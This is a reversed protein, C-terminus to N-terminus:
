RLLDRALGDAGSGVHIGCPDDQKLEERTAVWESAVVHVLVGAGADSPNNRGWTRKDVADRCQEIM